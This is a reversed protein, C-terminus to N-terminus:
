FFAVLGFTAGQALGLAINATRTVSTDTRTEDGNTAVNRTKTKTTDLITFGLAYEAFIAFAKHLRWQLGAIGRLALAFRNSKDDTIQNGAPDTDDTFSTTTNTWDFEVGAGFYPSVAMTTMLMLVVM